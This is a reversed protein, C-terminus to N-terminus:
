RYLRAFFGEREIEKLLSDDIFSAVKQGKLHPTTAALFDITRQMGREDPFPKSQIVGLVYNNYISELLVADNTKLYKRYVRLVLEKDKRALWIAECLAHLFAKATERNEKLFSRSSILDGGSAYVGHELVDALINVKYGQLGMKLVNDLVALTADIKGRHILLVREASSSLGTSLLQVDKGPILGLQPLLDQLAFDTAGGTRDTGIIKGKLGAISAISPHAVLKYPTPGVNAIIAIPGGQAALSIAAVGSTAAMHVDGAVLANLAVPAGSIFVLSTDLGYKEYLKAEKAIWYPIRSSSAAGYAFNVRRLRKDQAQAAACWLLFVIATAVAAIKLM